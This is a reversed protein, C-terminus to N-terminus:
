YLIIALFNSIESSILFGQPRSQQNSSCAVIYAWKLTKLLCTCYVYLCVIALSFLWSMAIVFRYFLVWSKWAKLGQADFFGACSRWTVSVVVLRLSNLSVNVENFSSYRSYKRACQLCKEISCDNQQTKSKSRTFIEDFVWTIGIFIQEHFFNGNFYFLWFNAFEDKNIDELPFM